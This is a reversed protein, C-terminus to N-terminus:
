ADGRRVRKAFEQASDAATGAELADLYDSYWQMMERRQRLYQAKNYVGSVGEEKHALQVEVFDRHWEHERLLTSATHRTGHGVLRGKYGVLAFVNGITNESIVPNKPGVGPFLYRGAGTFRQLELLQAVLQTSLPVVFDRRMKMKAAPVTWEAKALDLETWEAHRVMGPRSATRIAMWAATLAITRSKSERMAHLFDPLEHELLHPYQQTEPAPAAIVLLESAPNNECLGRAIAHSFIRQLWGRVKKAVNHADRAEIGAQLKACDKRTVEDVQLHGLAPLIDKDLYTRMKDLTSESLGERTKQEYWAEAAASFLNQRAKAEAAAAEVKQGVPDIGQELLETAERAKERARKAPVEPYGGLGMWSWAGTPKKFRLEWRKRGNPSVVFYLRDSGYNERYEKAEPDLSALVTDALPRRKIDTRKM